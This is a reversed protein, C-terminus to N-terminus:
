KARSIAIKIPKALVIIVEKSHAEHRCEEEDLGIDTAVAM